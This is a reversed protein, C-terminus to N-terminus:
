PASGSAHLGSASAGSMAPAAGETVWAQTAALSAISSAAPAPPALRPRADALLWRTAASALTFVVGLAIAQVLVVAAEPYVLLLAAASICAALWFGPTRAVRSYLWALGVALAALSAGIVIWVRRVTAVEAARPVDFASYLYANTSDPPSPASTAATWQELDRQSQTPQRGWVLGQWSLEYEANMGEPASLATMERPLLLQWFFPTGGSGGEIHPFSASVDGWPGRRQPAHRRLELTYRASAAVDPLDIALEDSAPASSVVKGNLLTEFPQDVFGAPLRVVIRSGGSAFRYVYRDQRMSGAIWTQAWAAEVRVDSAELIGRPQLRLALEGVPKNATAHFIAGAEGSSPEGAAHPAAKWAVDEGVSWLSVRPDASGPAIEAASVYPQSPTALALAMKGAGTQQTVDLEYQTRIEVAVRGITPRALRVVLRLADDQAQASATSLPLVEVATSPLPKGDQLLELGENALLETPVTM